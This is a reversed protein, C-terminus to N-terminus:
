VDLRRMLKPYDVANRTYTAVSYAIVQQDARGELIKAPIGVALAGKPVLTGHTVVAGAGVLAGEEIIANHHVLAGSGVLSGDQMTCGELHANHGVTCNSGILTPLDSTVHIVAGDQISTGQGIVIRNSDGRLVACPWISALSGITVDGIIVADPHVFADPHIQPVLEGYAYIPM